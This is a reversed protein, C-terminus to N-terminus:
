QINEELFTELEDRTPTAARGGLRTCKLAAAANAFRVADTEGKGEALALTFAGHWVDGAALTDVATVDHAQVHDIQTGARILVGKEGLTVAAWAADKLSRLGAEPDRTGAFDALGQESFAVHSARRIIDPDVPAEADVVGPVGAADAATLLHVAGPVWRTDVLAADFTSDTIWDLADTLHDGRYNVIQREGAADVLVSSFSSRGRPARDLCMIDVGEGDLGQVIMDGVADAGLRARLEAKGGLRHVAVAANAGGGGGITLADSARYKEARRPMEEVTFVFDLVALGCIRIRPAM